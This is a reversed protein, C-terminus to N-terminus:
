VQEQALEITGLIREIDRGERILRLGDIDDGKLSHSRHSTVAPRNTPGVIRSIPAADVAAIQEKFM